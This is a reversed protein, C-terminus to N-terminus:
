ARTIHHQIWFDYELNRDYLIRGNEVECCNLPNLASGEGGSCYCPRPDCDLKIGIM